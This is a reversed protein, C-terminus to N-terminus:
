GDQKALFRLIAPGVQNPMEVHPYHGAGDVMLVTGSLREAILRAEGEPGGALGKFDPDKTGMVVLAPVRVADLRREVATKPARLMTRVVELRGKERLNAKIRDLHASHDAPKATPYLSDYFSGWAAAGWPRVLGLNIMGWFMLSQAPSVPLTRAFPGILTVSRVQDPAEAAAWAVSGAANSQGILHAPGANLERLLAVVDSGTAAGTYDNWGTSSEGLGRLDMSLVRYGASALQPALFRYQQRLDGIGPVLVVLPGAPSGSEEYAVRGESRVLFNTSV